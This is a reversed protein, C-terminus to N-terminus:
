QASRACRVGFNSFRSYPAHSFRHGTRLNTADFNYAGGRFVRSSAAILNACNMCPNVYDAYWDLTWEWVNGALDSQGWRGDGEPKTGVAVLDTMACGAMGDGVCNTGDEYSSHAGDLPM